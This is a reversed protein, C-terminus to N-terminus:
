REGGEAILSLIASAIESAADYRGALYDASVGSAAPVPLRCLEAAERLARERESRVARLAQAVPMTQGSQESSKMLMQDMARQNTDTM